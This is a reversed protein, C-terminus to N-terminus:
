SGSSLIVSNISKLSGLLESFIINIKGVLGKRINNLIEKIVAMIKKAFVKVKKQIDVFEELVPDIFKEGVKELSDTVSIFDKLFQGIKSIADDGCTSDVPEAATNYKREAAIEAKTFQAGKGVVSNPNKKTFNVDRATLSQEQTKNTFTEFNSSGTPKIQDDSSISSEVEQNRNLLGFIVPQQAEEGDMFFGVATEGGQLSMSEGIGGQGSGVQPDQMVEAWPLDNEPMETEEWPHYGIIRVKVRQQKGGTVALTNNDKKWVSPAAVRGIWWVFGDRGILNSKLLSENM